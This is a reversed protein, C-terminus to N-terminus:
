GRVVALCIDSHRGIHQLTHRVSMGEERPRNPPPYPYPPPAPQKGPRIGPLRAYQHRRNKLCRSMEQYLIVTKKKKKKKEIYIM